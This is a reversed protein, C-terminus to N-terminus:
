RTRPAEGIVLREVKEARRTQRSRSSWPEVGPQSSDSQRRSRCSAFSRQALISQLVKPTELRQGSFWPNCSNAFSSHHSHRGASRWIASRMLLQESPRRTSASRPSSTRVEADSAFLSASPRAGSRRHRGGANAPRQSTRFRNGTILATSVYYRYRKGKKVAHTPSLRADNNDFVLGALLSPAEAGVALSRERRGAALRDRVTQWLEAGVIADHQGPYVAGKHAVEGRYIPNQLMLYLAGRSFPKGGALCGGAEERRKSVVGLRDLEAKLLAM